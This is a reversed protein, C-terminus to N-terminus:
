LLTALWDGLVRGVAAGVFALVLLILLKHAEM